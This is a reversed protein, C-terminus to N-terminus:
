YAANVEQDILDKLSEMGFGSPMKGNVFFTPTGRVDLTRLDESDQKIIDQIKPDQMDAKLKEIDLGLEPLYDFIKEVQPNHHSGWEPQKEFLLELAEWYKGQKRAAELAAIAVRSNGHFPAYRVVLQVKDGYEALLEKVPKYFRRCSECEPDLYEIVFVKADKNGYRPSHDRVFIEASSQALFSLKEQQSDKYLKTGLLFFAILLAASGIYLYNKNNM